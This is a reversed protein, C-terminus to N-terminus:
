KRTNFDPHRKSDRRNSAISRNQFKAATHATTAHRPPRQRHTPQTPSNGSTDHSATNSGDSHCPTYRTTVPWDGGDSGGGKRSVTRITALKPPKTFRAFPLSGTRLRDPFAELPLAVAGVGPVEESGARFM